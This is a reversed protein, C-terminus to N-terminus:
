AGYAQGYETGYGSKAREQHQWVAAAVASGAVLVLLSRRRLQTNSMRNRHTHNPKLYGDESLPPGRKSPLAM